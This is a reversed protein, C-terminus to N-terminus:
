IRLESVITAELISQIHSGSYIQCTVLQNILTERMVINFIPNLDTLFIVSHM